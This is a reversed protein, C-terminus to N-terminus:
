PPPAPVDEGASYFPTLTDVPGQLRTDPLPPVARARMWGLVSTKRLDYFDDDTMEADAADMRVFWWVTGAADTWEAVATGRAGRRYALLVNEEVGAQPATRLAEYAQAVGVAAPHRLYRDPLRTRPAIAFADVQRFELSAGVRHPAYYAYHHEGLGDGFSSRLLLSVPQGPLPRWMAEAAGNARMALVLRGGRNLYIATTSGEPDGTCGATPGSFVLDALGDGDADIWRFSVAQGAVHPCIGLRRLTASDPPLGPMQWDSWRLPQHRLLWSWDQAAAPSEWGALVAALAIGRACRTNFRIRM